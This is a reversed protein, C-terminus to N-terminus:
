LAYVSNHLEGDDMELVDKMTVFQETCARM